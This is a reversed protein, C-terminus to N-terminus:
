SSARSRRPSSAVDMPRRPARSTSCNGREISGAHLRPSPERQDSARPGLVADTSRPRAEVGVSVGAGGRLVLLLSHAHPRSRVVDASRPPLDHDPFAHGRDRDNELPARTSRRRVSRRVALARCPTAGESTRCHDAGGPSCGGSRASYLHLRHQLTQARRDNPFDEREFARESSPVWFESCRLLVGCAPVFCWSRVGYLSSWGLLGYAIM